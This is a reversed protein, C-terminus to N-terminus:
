LASRYYSQAIWLTLSARLVLGGRDLGVVDAVAQANRPMADVWGGTRILRAVDTLSPKICWAIFIFEAFVASPPRNCLWLVSGELKVLAQAISPNAHPIERPLHNNIICHTNSLRVTKM